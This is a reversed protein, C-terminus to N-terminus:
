FFDEKKVLDRLEKESDSVKDIVKQMDKNGEKKFMSVLGSRVADLADLHGQVIQKLNEPDPKSMIKQAAGLRKAVQDRTKAVNNPSTGQESVSQGQKTKDFKEKLEKAKSM